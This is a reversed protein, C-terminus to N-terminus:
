KLLRLDDCAARAEHSFAGVRELTRPEGVQELVFSTASVIIFM